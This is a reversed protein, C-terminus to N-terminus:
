HGSLVQRAIALERPEDDGSFAATLSINSTEPHIYMASFFNLAEQNIQAATLNGAAADKSVMLATSDLAAQM